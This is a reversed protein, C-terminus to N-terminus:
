LTPKSRPQHHGRSNGEVPIIRAVIESSSDGQRCDLEALSGAKSDTPDPIHTSLQQAARRAAPRILEPSTSTGAGSSREGIQKHDGPTETGPSSHSIVDSRGPQLAGTPSSQKRPFSQNYGGHTGPATICTRTHLKITRTRSTWYKWTPSEELDRCIKLAKLSWRKWTLAEEQSRRRRERLLPKRMWHAPTSRWGQERSQSLFEPHRWGRSMKRSSPINRIGLSYTCRMRRTIGPQDLTSVSLSRRHHKRQLQRHVFVPKLFPRAQISVRRGFWM